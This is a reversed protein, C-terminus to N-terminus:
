RLQMVCYMAWEARALLERDMLRLIRQIDSRLGPDSLQCHLELLLRKKAHIDDSHAVNLWGHLTKWFDQNM